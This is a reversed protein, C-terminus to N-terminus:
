QKEIIQNEKQIKKKKKQKKQKKKENNSPESFKIIGNVEKNSQKHSNTKSNSENFFIKSSRQNIKIKNQTVINKKSSYLCTGM